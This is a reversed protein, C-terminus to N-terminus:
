HNDCLIPRIALYFYYSFESRFADKACFYNYWWGRRQKRACHGDTSFEFNKIKSFYKAGPDGRGNELVDVAYNSREGEISFKDYYFFRESEFDVGVLLAHPSTKTMVNLRDLGIFYDNNANGFGAQYEYWTKELTGNDSHENRLIVTWPYCDKPDEPLCKTLCYVNFPPFGSLQLEYIGDKYRVGNKMKAETCDRIASLKREAKEALRKRNIEMLTKEDQQLNATSQLKSELEALRKEYNEMVIQVEQQLNATSRVKSELEALRKEYKEMVIQVRQLADETDKQQRRITEVSKILAEIENGADSYDILPPDLCGEDKSSEENVEVAGISNALWLLFVEFYCLRLIQKNM